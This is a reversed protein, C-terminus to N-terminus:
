LPQTRAINNQGDTMRKEFNKEGSKYSGVKCKIQSDFGSIVVERRIKKTKEQLFKM